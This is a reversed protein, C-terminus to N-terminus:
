SVLLSLTVGKGSQTTGVILTGGEFNSLPRQLVRERPEVGHIYPLGIEAAAQAEGRQGLARALWAPVVFDRFPIKALEYLRQSHVPQWEFGFGLFVQEPDRCCSRFRRRSITEMARGGLAARLLLLRLAQAGRCVAMVLSVGALWAPLAFPHGAHHALAAYLVAGCSWALGAYLEYARRWPMEYKRVSM